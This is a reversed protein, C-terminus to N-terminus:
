WSTSSLLKLNIDGTSRHGIDMGLGVLWVGNKIQLPFFCGACGYLWLWSLAAWIGRHERLRMACRRQRGGWCEWSTGPGPDACCWMWCSCYQKYVLVSGRRRVILSGSGKEVLCDGVITSGTSVALDGAELNVTYYLCELRAASSDHVHSAPPAHIM